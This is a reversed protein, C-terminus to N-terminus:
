GYITLTVTTNSIISKIKLFAFTVTAQCTYIGTDSARTYYLQSHFTNTLSSTSQVCGPLDVCPMGVASTVILLLLAGGVVCGVVTTTFIGQIPYCLFDVTM